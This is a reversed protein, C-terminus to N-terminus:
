KRERWLVLGTWTLWIPHFIVAIMVVPMALAQINLVTVVVFLLAAMGAIVGLWSLVRPLQGQRLAIWGAILFWSGLTSFRL